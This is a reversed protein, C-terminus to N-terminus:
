NKYLVDNGHIILLKEDETCYKKCDDPFVVRDGVKFIQLPQNKLPVRSWDTKCSLVIGQSCKVFVSPCEYKVFLWNDNMQLRELQLLNLAM